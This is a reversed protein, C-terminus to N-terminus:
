TPMEPEHSRRSELRWSDNRYDTGKDKGKVNPANMLPRGTRQYAVNDNASVIFQIEYERSSAPRRGRM